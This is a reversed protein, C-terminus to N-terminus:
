EKLAPKWTIGYSRLRDCIASLEAITHFCVETIAQSGAITIVSSILLQVMENSYMTM